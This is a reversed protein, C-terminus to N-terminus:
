RPLPGGSPLTLVTAFVVLLCLFSVKWYWKLVQICSHRFFCKGHAKTNCLVVLERIKTETKNQTPTVVQLSLGSLYM